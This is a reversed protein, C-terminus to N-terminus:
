GPVALLAILVAAESCEVLAGAVDGTFGGLRGMALTRVVAFMLLGALLAALGQEPWCLVVLALTGACLPWVMGRPLHASAAAALGKDRAYPTTAFLIPLLTRAILPPLLLIVHSTSSALASFKILLVLILATVGVPGCCPDKMIRLTRERDGLGGVLADACDAVGDLHLAGTVIVWAALLVAGRLLPPLHGTLTALGLLLMGIVLGIIPYWLVARGQDRESPMAGLWIPISTLFQLAILLPQM